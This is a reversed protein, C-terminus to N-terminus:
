DNSTGKSPWYTEKLVWHQLEHDDLLLRQHFRYGAKVGRRLMSVAHMEARSFTLHSLRRLFARFIKRFISERKKSEGLHFNRFSSYSDSIGQNFGRNYFYDYTMRNPTVKHHISAGPVFQCVLGNQDIYKSLYTEGDGRFRILDAPMGDPHFGGAEKLLCNRVALNCGWVYSPSFHSAGNSFDCVSLAPIAKFGGVQGRNWLRLLWAPPEELFMPLNNGGAMMLDANNTFADYYSQLWKPSAVIDDDAFVLVDGLAADAGAHRGVHLGPSSEYVSKLNCLVQQFDQIVSQTNDSSGNDIVIVEFRDNPLTQDVLSRLADRLLHARDRTPIIVSIM